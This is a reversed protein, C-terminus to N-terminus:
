EAALLCFPEFPLNRLLVFLLVLWILTRPAILSGTWELTPWRALHSPLLRVFLTWAGAFVGVGLLCNFRLVELINGHLLAHVARLTGCGPCHLGTLARLPCSPFVGSTSPDFTFVFVVVWCAMWLLATTLALRVLPYSNDVSGTM